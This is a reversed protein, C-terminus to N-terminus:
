TSSGRRQGHLACERHLVVYWVFRPIRLMRRWRWPQIYFRYLWELAIHRMWKPARPVVGAIFDFTGGVGMAVRVNLRDRNRAIWKDQQPAGYAVFLIDANSRNIRAIIDDEEEPAPSGAHTGAIQLDPHQAILNAVAQEAVGPGAGLLFLRWGERAARATIFPVGDSGTVREPLPRGLYRAAFLLGIGDAVCLDASHLVQMFEPDEQAIIVFEPSATCIQYTRDGRVIWTAISDAMGEFTTPHIPVGLIHVPERQNSISQAPM